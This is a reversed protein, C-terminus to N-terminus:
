LLLDMNVREEILEVARRIKWPTKLNIKVEMQNIRVAAGYTDLACSVVPIKFENLFDLHPLDPNESDQGTVVIGAVVSGPLGRDRLIGQLAELAESIRRRSVLILLNRLHDIEERALLSGSAINEVRNDLQKRHLLTKGDLTSRITAM